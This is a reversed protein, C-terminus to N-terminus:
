YVPPPPRQPNEVPRRSDVMVNAEAGDRPDTVRLTLHSNNPRRDRKEVGYRASASATALGWDKMRQQAWDAAERIKPPGTLRPGYLPGNDTVAHAFHHRRIDGCRLGDSV